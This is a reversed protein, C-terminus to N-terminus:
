RMTACGIDDFLAAARIFAGVMMANKNVYMTRDKKWVGYTRRSDATRRTLWRMRSGASSRQRRNSGNPTGSGCRRKSSVQLLAANDELTKGTGPRTRDDSGDAYRFFGGSGADWLGRMRRLTVGAMTALESDGDGGISLAFSLAYPHPLKPASGFGGNLADFRELLLSRFHAIATRPDHDVNSAARPASRVARLRASRASIEDSM